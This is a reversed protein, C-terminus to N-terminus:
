WTSLSVGIKVFIRKIHCVEYLVSIIIGGGRLTPPPMLRHDADTTRGDTRRDMQRDSTAYMPELEFVLLSYSSSVKCLPVGPWMRSGCRSWPWFTLLWSWPAPAYQPPWRAACSTGDTQYLITSFCLLSWTYHAYAHAEVGLMHLRFVLLEAIM